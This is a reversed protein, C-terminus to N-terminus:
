HPLEVFQEEVLGAERILAGLTERALERHTHARFKM